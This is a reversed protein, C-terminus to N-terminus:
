SIQKQKPQHWIFTAIIILIQPAMKYRVVAGLVPITWGIILILIIASLFLFYIWYKEENNIKKRSWLLWGIFFVFLINEVFAIYKFENGGDSPFPRILVNLFALPTNKLLNLGSGNIPPVDVYSNSPATVLYVAYAENSPEITFPHFEKQGFLKYEGEAEKTATILGKPKNYEFHNLYQYDFACFASDNIFFVGGKALNIMDQQKQTIRDVPNIKSPTLTSIVFAALTLATFAFGTKWNFKIRNRLIFITSLPVIILGLHTKNFILFYLCCVLLFLHKWNFEKNLIKNLLSFYIGISLVFLAEKTLGSGWFAFSPTLFISYFFLKKSQIYKEFSNYILLSGIFSFFAFFLVHVWINGGSIFHILSNIRIILRNDNIFEGNEGSSWLNTKPIKEEVFNIDNAKNTFMLQLYGLPDNKGFDSILKGDYYFNSVDGDPLDDDSFYEISLTMFFVAALIKIGWATLLDKKSINIKLFNKYVIWSFLFLLILIFIYGM